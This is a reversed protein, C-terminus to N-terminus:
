LHKKHLDFSLGASVGIAFYAYNDQFFINYPDQGRYGIAATLATNEMFGFQYYYKLSANLRKSV